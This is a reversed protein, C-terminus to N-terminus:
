LFMNAWFRTRADNWTNISYDDININSIFIGKSWVQVIVTYRWNNLNQM